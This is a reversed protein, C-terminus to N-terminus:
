FTILFNETVKVAFFRGVLGLIFIDLASIVESFKQTINRHLSGENGRLKLIISSPSLLEYVVGTYHRKKDTIGKARLLNIIEKEEKENWYNWRQFFM